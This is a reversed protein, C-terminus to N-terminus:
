APEGQRQDTAESLDAHRQLVELPGAATWSGPAFVTLVSNGRQVRLSGAVDTHIETAEDFVALCVEGPQLGKWIVALPAKRISPSAAPSM